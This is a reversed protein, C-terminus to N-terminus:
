PHPNASPNQKSPALRIASTKQQSRAAIACCLSFTKTLPMKHLEGM